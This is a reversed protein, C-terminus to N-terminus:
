ASAGAERAAGLEHTVRERLAQEVLGVGLGEHRGLARLGVVDREAELLRDRAPLDRGPRHQPLLLERLLEADAPRRDALRQPPQARPHPEDREQRVAANRTRVATARPAAAPPEEDAGLM